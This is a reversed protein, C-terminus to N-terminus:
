SDILPLQVLLHAGTLDSANKALCASCCCDEPHKKPKESPEDFCSQKQDCRPQISANEEPCSDVPSKESSKQKNSMRRPAIKKPNPFRGNQKRYGDIPVPVECFFYSHSSPKFPDFECLPDIPMQCCAYPDSFSPSHSLFGEPQWFTRVRSFARSALTAITEKIWKASILFRKM